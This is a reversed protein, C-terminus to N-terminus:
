QQEEPEEGDEEVLAADDDLVPPLVRVEPLLHLKHLTTDILICRFQVLRRDCSEFIGSVPFSLLSM